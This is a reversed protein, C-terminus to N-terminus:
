RARAFFFGIRARVNAVSGDCELEDDVDDVEDDGEVWGCNDDDM